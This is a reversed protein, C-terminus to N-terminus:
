KMSLELERILEEDEDAKCFHMESIKLSKTLNELKKHNQKKQELFKKFCNIAFDAKDKTFSKELMERLTEEIQPLSMLLAGNEIWSPM